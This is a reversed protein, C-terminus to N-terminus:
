EPSIYIYTYITSYPSPRSCFTHFVSHTHAHTNTPTCTSCVDAVLRIFRHMHMINPIKKPPLSIANACVKSACLLRFKLAAEGDGPGIVSARCFTNHTNLDTKLVKTGARSSTPFHEFHCLSCSLSPPCTLAVPPLLAPLPILRPPPPPPGLLTLFGTTSQTYMDACMYSHVRVRRVLVSFCSLYLYAHACSLCLYAHAYSHACWFLCVFLCVVLLVFARVCARVCARACVCVCV